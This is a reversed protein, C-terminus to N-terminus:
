KVDGEDGEEGFLKVFRLLSDLTRLTSLGDVSSVTEDVLRVAYRRKNQEDENNAEAITLLLQHVLKIIEENRKHIENDFINNFLYAITDSKGSAQHQELAINFLVQKQWIHTSVSNLMEDDIHKHILEALQGTVKSDKFGTLVFKVSKGSHKILSVGAANRSEKAQSFLMDGAEKFAEYLPYKYYCIAVGFSLTPPDTANFISDFETRLEELLHLLNKGDNNQSMLPAIFLLDDGGAYITVGGFGQVMKSAIRCFKFCKQAFERVNSQSEIYRGFRDGDSQIIAYYSRVKERKPIPMGANRAENIKQTEIRRGTIDEMDPMRKRDASNKFSVLDSFPWKKDSFRDRIRERIQTNKDSSEFMTVLPNNALKAPFTMELEVSDLYKSPATILEGGNKNSEFNLAHLQLYERFWDVPKDDFAEAIEETIQGFLKNIEDLVTQENKPKFIIRDHFLGIGDEQQSLPDTVSYYPILIEDDSSVINEKIILECLRRSIFSFLYSAAWLGAPSSTESITDYIPGITIATYTM